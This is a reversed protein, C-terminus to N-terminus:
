FPLLLDSVNAMDYLGIDSCVNLVLLRPSDETLILNDYKGYLGYDLIANNSKISSFDSEERFNVESLYKLINLM